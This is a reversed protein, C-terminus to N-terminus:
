RAAQGTLKAIAAMMEKLHVAPNPSDTVHLINGDLGILFSMRRDMKTEGGMRAGYADAIHGGTDALLPFSLNNRFAFQQHSNKDDFSVGVVEVGMQKLEVLNDRLSCAEATCGATNDKPYFYLFVVNKGLYNALKWTHGDQDHGSFLPARDGASLLSKAPLPLAAAALAAASIWCFLHRSIKM